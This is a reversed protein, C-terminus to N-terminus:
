VIKSIVLEGLEYFAKEVNEGTRASTFYYQSEYKKALSRLMDEDVEQKDLLDCKNALFIMPVDGVANRLSKIWEELAPLTDARTSDCVALSGAAGYFYSDALLTRFTAQGMIDWILMTLHVKLDKEPYEINIAKKSVKTGLTRLYKDDFMDLIFRKVLSTKGVEGTGILCIKKIIETDKAM